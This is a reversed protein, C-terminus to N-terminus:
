GETIDGYMAYMHVMTAQTDSVAYCTYINRLSCYYTDEVSVLLQQQLAVNVLM